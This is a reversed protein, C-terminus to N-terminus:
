FENKFGPDELKFEMVGGCKKKKKSKRNLREYLWCNNPEQQKHSRQMPMLGNLGSHVRGWGWGARREMEM